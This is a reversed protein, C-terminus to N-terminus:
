TDFENKEGGKPELLEVNSCVINTFYRKSGDQGTREDTEISGEVAVLAGKQVYQNVFEAKQQWAKCRLFDTQKEGNQNKFRRDVALTFTVVANGSNTYKFEPERTLRGILVVRNFSPM